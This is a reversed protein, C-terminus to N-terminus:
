LLKQAIAGAWELDLDAEILDSNTGPDPGYVVVQPDAAPLNSNSRFKRIDALDIDTQGIIAIKQGAGDIGSQFLPAINYIVSLDDPALYHNGGSNYDSNYSATQRRYMPSHRFDDLGRVGSVVGEFEMPIELSRSPAFHLQNETQFRHIETHFARGVQGATGSFTIWNRGRAVDHVTLGQGALWATMKAIDNASLGFRDGFQEPTLWRHFDASSPDQQSALFEELGTAARLLLTAYELRMAPDVAGADFGAQAKPHVSHQLVASRGSPASRIRDPAASLIYVCFLSCILLRLQASNRTFM